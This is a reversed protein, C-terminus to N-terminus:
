AALGCCEPPIVLGETEGHLCLGKYDCLTCPTNYAMRARKPFRGARIDQTFWDVKKIFAQVAKEPRRPGTAPPLVEPGTGRSTKPIKKKLLEMYGLRDVQDIGLKDKHAEVLIQYATLQDAVLFFEEPAPSAPTKFDPVVIEGTNSDMAVVDPTGFLVVGPLIEVEFKRELVPGEDDVLPVLGSQGWAEPFLACLRAGTAELDSPGFSANYNIAQTECAEKWKFRFHKEPDFNVGAMMAALYKAIAEHVITGFVLNASAVQPKIKAIYQLYMAYPCEDGKVIQSPRLFIKKM